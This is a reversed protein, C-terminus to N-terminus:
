KPEGTDVNYRGLLYQLMKLRQEPTAKEATLMINIVGTNHRTERAKQAIDSSNVPNVQERYLWRIFDMAERKRHEDLLKLVDMIDDPTTEPLPPALGGRKWARWLEDIKDNVSPERLSESELLGAMQFVEVAKLDFVKAVAACFDWGANRDEAIVSSVSTQSMNMRRALERQSWGRNKLEVVLWSILKNNMMIM